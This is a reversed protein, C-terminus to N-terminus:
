HRYSFRTKLKNMMLFFLCKILFCTRIKATNAAHTKAKPVGATSWPCPAPEGLATRPAVYRVVMVLALVPANEDRENIVKCVSWEKVATSEPWPPGPTWNLLWSPLQACLGLEVMVARVRSKEKGGLAPM